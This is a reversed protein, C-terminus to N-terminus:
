KLEEGDIFILLTPINLIGEGDCAVGGILFCGPQRFSGSTCLTLGSDCVLGSQSTAELELEYQASRVESPVACPLPRYGIWGM